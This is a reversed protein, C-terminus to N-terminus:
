GAGQAPSAQAAQPAFSRIYNIAHWIQEDSLQDKWAPMATGPFGNAIWDYLQGDTHGAAMHVRLDAPPPRLATAAPGDGRGTDGHCAACQADYIRKGIALSAQDPPYPNRRDANSSPLGAGSISRAGVYLGIGVVLLSAALGPMATRLDRGSRTWSYWALALGALAALAALATRLVSAPLAAFPVPQSATAGPPALTFRVATRADDLGARRVIITAQWAGTVGLEGGQAQYVGDGAPALPVETEGLEQDLFSFRLVARQANEIPQGGSDVVRLTYTNFGPRGPQLSLTFSLDGAASKLELPRNALAQGYTQWAPQISTLLAALLLAGVGLAAEALLTSRFRAAVRAGAERALRPQVVLFHFAGLLTM